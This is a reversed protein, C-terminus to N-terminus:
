RRPAFESGQMGKVSEDGLFYAIAMPAYPGVCGKPVPYDKLVELRYGIDIARERLEPYRVGIEILCFNMTEQQHFGALKMEREIMGLYREADEPHKKIWDNALSWGMRAVFEHDSSMWKERVANSHPSNKLINVVMWDAIKVYRIEHAMRDLDEITLQKPKLLLTALCRAEDQGTEWLELGLAHDSKIEKALGRLKSLNVGLHNDSAGHKLNVARMKPDAWAELQSLVEAKTM